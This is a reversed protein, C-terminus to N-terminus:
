GAGLIVVKSIFVHIRTRMLLGTFFKQIEACPTKSTGLVVLIPVKSPHKHYPYLEFPVIEYHSYNRPSTSM